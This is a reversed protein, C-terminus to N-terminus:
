YRPRNRAHRKERFTDPPWCSGPRRRLRRLKSRLARFTVARGLGTPVVADARRRKEADPMQRKLIAELRQVTMGPRALVRQRQVLRSASVVLVHDVGGRRGAEFLLPIDLVAVDGRRRAVRKVFRHSEARVLPHLIAELAKLRATDTFVLAGLIGRDVSGGRVAEPFASAIAPLAAGGPAMLRHVTADSDHVPVGLTRLMGAATSKGMGISGTLGLILM